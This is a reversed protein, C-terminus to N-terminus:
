QIDTETFNRIVRLFYDNGPAPTFQFKSMGNHEHKMHNAIQFQNGTERDERFLEAKQFEIVAKDADESKSTVQFYVKNTVNYVFDTDHMEPYFSVDIDERDIIPVFFSSVVPRSTSFGVNTKVIVSAIKYSGM